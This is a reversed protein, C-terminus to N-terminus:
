HAAECVLYESPLPTVDRGLMGYQDYSTIFTRNTVLVQQHLNLNLTKLEWHCKLQNSAETPAKIRRYFM